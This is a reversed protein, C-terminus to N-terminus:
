RVYKAVESVVTSVGPYLGSWAWAVVAGGVLALGTLFGFISDSPQSLLGNVLKKVVIRALGFGVLAGGGLMLYQRWAEDAAMAAFPRAFLWVLSAAAVGAAFGIAGSLGRFLGMAAAVIAAAFIVYDAPTFAPM